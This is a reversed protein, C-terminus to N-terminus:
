QLCSGGRKILRTTNLVAFATDFVTDVIVVASPWRKLYVLPLSFCNAAFLSTAVILLLADDDAGSSLLATGQLVIEAIERVITVCLFYKGGM